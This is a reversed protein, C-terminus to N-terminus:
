VANIKISTRHLEAAFQVTLANLATKSLCYASYPMAYGIWQPNSQSFLSSTGSSVNVIRGSSSRRLLPLFTRIVSFTGFFNTEFAARLADATLQSPPCAFFGAGANNVLIDLRGFEAEVSEACAAVSTPDSIDLQRTLATLGVATLREAAERGRELDRAGLLVTIGERALRKVVEYGIGRNAGSVLAIRTGLEDM